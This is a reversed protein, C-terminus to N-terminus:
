QDAALWKVTPTTMRGSLLFFSEGTRGSGHGTLALSDQYLRYGDRGVVSKSFKEQMNGTFTFSTGNTAPNTFTITARYLFTHNQAGSATNEKGQYLYDGDHYTESYTLFDSVNTVLINGGASQVQFHDFDVLVLRAGYPFGNPFSSTYVGELLGVLDTSTLRTTKVKDTWTDGKHSSYDQQQLTFQTSVPMTQASVGAVFVALGLVPIVLSRIFTKM